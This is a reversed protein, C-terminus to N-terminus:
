GLRIYDSTYHVLGLHLFQLFMVPLAAVPKEQCFDSSECFLNVLDSFFFM